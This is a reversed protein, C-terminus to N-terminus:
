GGEPHGEFHYHSYPTAPEGGRAADLDEVMREIEAKLVRGAERMMEIARERDMMLREFAELIDPDAYEFVAYRVLAEDGRGYGM